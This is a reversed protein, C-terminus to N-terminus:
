RDTSEAEPPSGVFFFNITVECQSVTAVFSMVCIYISVCTSKSLVQDVFSKDLCLSMM